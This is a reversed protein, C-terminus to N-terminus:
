RLTEIVRATLTEALMRRYSASGRFDDPPELGAAPNAPDVLVPSGAVGTLAVVVTRDLRRGVAAVIPVDAPTRGTASTALEGEPDITVATIVAGSSVGQQLVLRLPHASGGAFEVSADHVLLAALLVSDSDSAAILGGLTALTRLTSPAEARAIRQLAPSLEISRAVADLTAMAGIRVRGGTREIGELGLSQLDVVEIDSAARDANITTGGALPVRNPEALLALAESLSNPRHYAAVLPM